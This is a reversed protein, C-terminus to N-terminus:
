SGLAGVRGGEYLRACSQMLGASGFHEAARRRGAEGLRRRAEADRFLSYTARALAAKSGPEVLYGTEGDAVVEALGPWRSAVVPRGASMAELAAGHGRDALSPVWVVDARELLPGLDAVNGAFHVYATVGIARAFERVRPLDPGTGVLVLCVNADEHRLIDMVWVAERFGKDAEVPGICLLVRVGPPIPPLATDGAVSPVPAARPAVAVCPLGLGLRLYRQAESAGFAVVGARRLLFRDIPHPRGGPPLLASAVLRGGGTGPVLAAARLGAPCWAHVVDPQWEHALSRLALFPRVDFPRRWGLLDVEVGASRLVGVWRAARGLVAVRPQFRDRPLHLALLTMQGAASGYELSPIVFLIKRV